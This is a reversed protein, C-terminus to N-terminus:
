QLQLVAHSGMVGIKKERTRPTQKKKTNIDSGGRYLLSLLRTACSVSGAERVGPFRERIFVVVSWPLLGRFLCLIVLVSRVMEKSSTKWSPRGLSLYLMTCVVGGSSGGLHYMRRLSMCPM